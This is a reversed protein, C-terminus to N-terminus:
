RITDINDEWNRGDFPVASFHEAMNDDLSHVNISIGDPHSRPVYFPHTGCRKCFMHQAIGTNFRYTTIDDEGKTLTYADREVIHHLFGKLVCISCNCRIAEYATVHVSYRVAGCHCGGLLRTPLAPPVSKPSM